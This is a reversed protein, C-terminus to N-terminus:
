FIIREISIVRGYINKQLQEESLVYEKYDFDTRYDSTITFNFIIPNDQKIRRIKLIRGEKILFIKNDVINKNNLDVYVLDRNQVTPYMSNVNYQFAIVKEFISMINLISFTNKDKALVSYNRVDNLIKDFDERGNLLYNVLNKYFKINFFENNKTNMKSLDLNEDYLDNINCHFIEAFQNLREQTLPQEKNEINFLNQRTMGTLECMENISIKNKLRLIKVNNKM